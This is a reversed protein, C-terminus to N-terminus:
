CNIREIVVNVNPLCLLADLIQQCILEGDSESNLFMKYGDATRAHSSLENSIGNNALSIVKEIHSTEKSVIKVSRAKIHSRRNIVYIGTM